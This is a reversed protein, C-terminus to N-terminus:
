MDHGGGLKQQIAVRSYLTTDQGQIKTETVRVGERGKLAAKVKGRGTSTVNGKDNTFGAVKAIDHATRPENTLANTAQIAEWATERAVASKASGVSTYLGTEKDYAIVQPEFNVFRGKGSFRRLNGFAGDAYRLWLAYDAAGAASSAGRMAKSPDANDAQDESKGSHADILWPIKTHRTAAKVQEVVLVAGANDNEDKVLGRIVSQWSSILVLGYKGEHVEAVISALGDNNLIISNRYFTMMGPPTNLHRAVYATYEPPDEAAIVLVRVQKTKRGIVEHGNAAGGGIAQGLTTKGVKAFAVLMGLMGYNPITDEMLFQVGVKAIARGEDAVVNADALASPDLRQPIEAATKYSAAFGPRDPMDWWRQYELEDSGM